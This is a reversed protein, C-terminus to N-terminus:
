GQRTVSPTPKGQRGGQRLNQVLDPRFCALCTGGKHRISPYV